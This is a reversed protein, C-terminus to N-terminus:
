KDKGHVAIKLKKKHLFAKLIKKLRPGRKPASIRHIYGRVKTIGFNGAITELRPPQLHKNKNKPSFIGKLPLFRFHKRLSDM